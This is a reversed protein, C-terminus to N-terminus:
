IIGHEEYEILGEKTHFIDIFCNVNVPKKNDKCAFMM